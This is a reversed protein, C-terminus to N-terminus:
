TVSTFRIAEIQGSATAHYFGVSALLFFNVKTDDTDSFELRPESLVGIVYFGVVVVNRLFKQRSEVRIFMSLTSMKQTYHAFKKYNHNIEPVGKQKTHRHQFTSTAEHRVM